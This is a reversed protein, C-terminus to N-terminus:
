LTYMQKITLLFHEAESIVISSPLAQPARVTFRLPIDKVSLPNTYEVQARMYVSCREFSSDLIGFDSDELVFDVTCYLFPRKTNYTRVTKM